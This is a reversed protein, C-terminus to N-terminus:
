ELVQLLLNLKVGKLHVQHGPIGHLKGCALDSVDYNDNNCPDQALDALRGPVRRLLFRDMQIVTKRSQRVEEAVVAQKGGTGM